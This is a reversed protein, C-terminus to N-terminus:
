LGLGNDHYSQARFPPALVRSTEFVLSKPTRLGAGSECLLTPTKRAPIEVATEQPPFALTIFIKIKVPREFSFFM